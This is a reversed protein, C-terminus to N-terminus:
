LALWVGWGILALGTARAFVRGHPLTKETLAAAALLAIWALNMVGAVFLIAMRLWCCGVCYAGHRLGTLLAGFHGDRLHEALFDLPSRCHALCRGKLPSWQYAGAAVLITAGTRAHTTSMGASLQAAAHLAWQALAAALSFATWALVYGAVFLATPTNPHGARLRADTIRDFVLIAPIAAPVMMAAMMVAWMWFVLALDTAHWARLDPGAMVSGSMGQMDMDPM